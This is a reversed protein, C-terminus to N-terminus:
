NKCSNCNCKLSCLDCCKCSSTTQTVETSTDFEQLMFRRRCSEATLKCYEKMTEVTHTASVRIGSYLEATAPLGDRGARGTEQMYTEVDEPCGWHIIRRINPCDLGMGFAITAILIRLASNPQQFQRLIINKVTPHTCATFMDVIRVEAHDTYGEPESM